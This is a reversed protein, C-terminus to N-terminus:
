AEAEADRREGKRWGSLYEGPASGVLVESRTEVWCKAGCSLPKDPRYVVKSPGLIEVTDAPLNEKSTKVRLPEAESKRIDFQNVHIRKITGAPLRM